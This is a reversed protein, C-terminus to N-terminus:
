GRSHRSETCRSCCSGKTVADPACIVSPMTAVMWTLSPGGISFLSFARGLLQTYTSTRSRSRADTTGSRRSTIERSTVSPGPM